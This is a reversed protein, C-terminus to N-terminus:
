FINAQQYVSIGEGTIEYPKTERSHNADRLKQIEVALRTKRFDSPRVYQLIFVGDTLYEVIGYRSTYPDNQDAESTLMTTVGARKLSRTFDYIQNRRTARDDYMMELLSVSDLVLRSAGFGDILRPLESRITALSNAMEVPDLDVVALRGTEIYEDFPLGKETASRVIRERSEELTIFVARGDNRLTEDLFQMGFTTKGTGASGVAVLLSRDPVGGQIMDDLGDIGLAIRDIDSDVAADDFGEADSESTVGGLDGFGGEGLDGGVDFGGDDAGTEFSPANEFETAFDQDFLGDGGNGVGDVDGGRDSRGLDADADSGLSDDGEVAGSREDDGDRADVDVDADSGSIAREFWDKGEGEVEDEGEGEGESVM